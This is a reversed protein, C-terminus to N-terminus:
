SPTSSPDPSMKLLAPHHWKSVVYVFHTTVSSFYSLLIVATPKCGIRKLKEIRMIRIVSFTHRFDREACEHTYICIYVYKLIYM